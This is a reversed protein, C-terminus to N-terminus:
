INRAYSWANLRCSRVYLTSQVHVPGNERNSTKIKKDRSGSVSPRRLTLLLEKIQDVM